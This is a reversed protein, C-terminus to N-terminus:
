YQTFVGNDMTENWGWSASTGQEGISRRYLRCCKGEGRLANKTWGCAQAATHNESHYSPDDVQKPGSSESM